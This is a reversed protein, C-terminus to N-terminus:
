RGKPDEDTLPSSAATQKLESTSTVDPLEARAVRIARPGSIGLKVRSKSIEVVKLTVSSGIRIEEGNRRSLVLM